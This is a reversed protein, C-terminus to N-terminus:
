LFPSSHMEFYGLGFVYYSYWMLNKYFFEFIQIRNEILIHYNIFKNTFPMYFFFSYFTMFKNQSKYVM